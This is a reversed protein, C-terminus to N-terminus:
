RGCCKKYKKGSGCPCPENRGVKRSGAPQQNSTAPQQFIGAAANEDGGKMIVGSGEITSASRPAQDLEAKFILHIVEEYINAILREFMGYAERKYEM